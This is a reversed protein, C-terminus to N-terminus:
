RIWNVNRMIEVITLRNTYMLGAAIVSVAAGPLKMVVQLWYQPYFLVLMDSLHAVACGLIFLGTVHFVVSLLMVRSSVVILMVGIFVYSLLYASDVLLHAYILTSDGLMCVPGHPQYDM